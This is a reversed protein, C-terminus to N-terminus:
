GKYWPKYGGFSGFGIGGFGNFPNFNNGNFFGGFHQQIFADDDFGGASAAAPRLNSTPFDGEVYDLDSNLYFFLFFPIM